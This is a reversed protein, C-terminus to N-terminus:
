FKISVSLQLAGQFYDKRISCKISSSSGSIHHSHDLTVSRTIPLHVLVELHESLTRGLADVEALVFHTDYGPSFSICQWTQRLNEERYRYTM